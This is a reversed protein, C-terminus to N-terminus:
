GADRYVADVGICVIDIVPVGGGVSPRIGKPLVSFQVDGMEWPCLFACPYVFLVCGEPAASIERGLDGFFPHGASRMFVSVADM